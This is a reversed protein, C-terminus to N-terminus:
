AKREESKLKLLASESLKIIESLTQSDNNQFLEATEAFMKKYGGWIRIAILIGFGIGLFILVEQAVSLVEVHVAKYIATLFQVWLPVFLALYVGSALYEKPKGRAIEKEILNILFELKKEDYLNFLHLQNEFCKFQYQYFEKTQWAGKKPQISYRTKIIVKAKKIFVYALTYMICACVFWFALSVIGITMQLALLSLLAGGVLLISSFVFLVLGWRTVLYQFKMHRFLLASFAVKERYHKIFADMMKLYNRWAMIERITEIESLEVKFIAKKGFYIM